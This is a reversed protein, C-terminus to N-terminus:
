EWNLKWISMIESDSCPWLKKLLRWKVEHQRILYQNDPEKQYSYSGLVLSQAFRACVCLKLIEKEKQPLQRVEQYGEIVYQAMEISKSQTIMYCLNIALDFVYYGKSSDGFDIIAELNKGDPSVIMNNENLDGHIMGSELTNLISLVKQEFTTVIQEVLNRDNEDDTAFLFERLQPVSNLFWLFTRNEYAPHSFEELAKDLRALSLGVQKLLEPTVPVKDFVEGAIFLLM